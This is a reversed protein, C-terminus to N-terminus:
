AVWAEDPEKSDNGLIMAGLRRAVDDHLELLQGYTLLEGTRCGFEDIQRKVDGVRRLSTHTDVDWFWDHGNAAFAENLACRELEILEIVHTESKAISM